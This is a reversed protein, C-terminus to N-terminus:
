QDEVEKIKIAKFVTFVEALDEQVALRKEMQHYVNTIMEQIKDLDINMSYTDESIDVWIFGNKIDANVMDKASPKFQGTFIISERFPDFTILIRREKKGEIKIIWEM